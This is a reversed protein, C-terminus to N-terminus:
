QLVFRTIYNHRGTVASRKAYHPTVSVVVLSLDNIDRTSLVSSASEIVLFTDWGQNIGLIM